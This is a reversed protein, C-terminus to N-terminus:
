LGLHKKYKELEEDCIWSGDIPDGGIASIRIEFYPDPFTDQYYRQFFVYGLRYSEMNAQYCWIQGRGTLPGLIFPVYQPTLAELNTPYTGNDQQYQEVASAIRRARELTIEQPQFMWGLSYALTIMLPILILFAIGAYKARGQSVGFMLMGILIAFLIEIFPFHDEAARGTAEVLVAKRVMVACLAMLLILAVALGSGDRIRDGNNIGNMMQHFLAGLFSIALIIFLSGLISKVARLNDLNMVTPSDIMGVADLLLYAAVFVAGMELNKLSSRRSMEWAFASLAAALLFIIPIYTVGRARGLSILFILVASLLATVLLKDSRWASLVDRWRIFLIALLGIFTPILVLIILPFDGTSFSQAYFSFLFLIGSIAILIFLILNRSVNQPSARVSLREGMWIVFLAPLITSLALVSIAIQGM